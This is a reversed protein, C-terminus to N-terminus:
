ILALFAYCLKDNKKKKEFRIVRRFYQGSSVNQLGWMRAADKSDFKTPLTVSSPLNSKNTMNLKLMINDLLRGPTIEM